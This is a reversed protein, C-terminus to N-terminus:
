DFYYSQNTQDFIHADNYKCKQKGMEASKDERSPIWTIESGCEWRYSGVSFGWDYAVLPSIKLEQQTSSYMVTEVRPNEAPYSDAVKRSRSSSQLIQTVDDPLLFVWKPRCFLNTNSWSLRHLLFSVKSDMSRGAADSPFGDARGICHRM